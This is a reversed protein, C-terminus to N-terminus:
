SACPGTEPAAGRNGAPTGDRWAELLPVLDALRELTPVGAVPDVHEHRWTVEYPVHVGRGGLEIVPLVDSRLSNGVMVVSRAPVGLREFVGAYTAVDKHAVVETRWFHHKLGSRDLKTLQDYLDGKTIVVLVHDRGLTELVEPVDPLLEVPSELLRRGLDVIDAVIGAGVRGGSVQVATEIMSLTFSKVGYGFLPLNRTETAFLADDVTTADAWPALLEEFRRHVVQFRTENHWLTDDADFAVIEPFAGPPDAPASAPAHESM